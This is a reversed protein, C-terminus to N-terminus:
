PGPRPLRDQMGGASDSQLDFRPEHLAQQAVEPCRCRVVWVRSRVFGVGVLDTPKWQEGM